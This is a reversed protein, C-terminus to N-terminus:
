NGAPVLRIAQGGAPPLVAHIRAAADVDITRIRVGNKGEGNEYVTARYRTGPELFKLEIDLERAHDNTISGAYWENGSRRAVSVFEGIAGDLVKTDDWVTPVHAFFDVEPEGKYASPKDYWYLFQLPSYYIVPLALQHARTTKIRPSYYCVTYDAAGAIFRTFPQITNQEATPMNENGMVGEVTLLNPYTRSTGTPRYEDHIDVMLHHEGAKRVAKHLWATWDQPGVRVFGFKVGKVGWQEFLPFIQDMQRELARRNVYLLIGIGRENAYKIVEQLDLGGHDPISSVREPDLNVHTADSAESYEYGYWGADYEVYQLGRAVAFDVCAKGGKTSLTVERIVKGRKIWGTSELMSPPNLNLVLYNRELLDGPREGILVFRWPTGYPAKGRMPGDLDSAIVGPKDKVPSLLMRPYNFNAAEGIAAYLGGGFEVTLPRECKRQIDEVPVRAYETDSRHAEWVQVGKPLHFETHEEAFLFPDQGPIRYRLAFGEDYARVLLEMARFPTAKDKLFVSLENYNDPIVKREGFEPSWHDRHQTVSHRVVTFVGSYLSLGLGSDLLVPRGHYSARYQLREAGAEVTVEVRGDPSTVQIPQAAAIASAALFLVSTLSRM